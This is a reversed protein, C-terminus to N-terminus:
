QAGDFRSRPPSFPWIRRHLAAQPPYIKRDTVNALDLPDQLHEDRAAHVVHLVDVERALDGGLELRDVGGCAGVELADAESEGRALLASGPAGCRECNRLGGPLCNSMRAAARFRMSAASFSVPTRKASPTEVTTTL